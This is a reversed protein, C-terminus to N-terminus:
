SRTGSLVLVSVALWKCEFGLEIKDVDALQQTGEPPVFPVLEVLADVLANM